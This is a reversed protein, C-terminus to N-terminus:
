NKRCGNSNKTLCSHFSCSSTHAHHPMWWFQMLICWEITKGGGNSRWSGETVQKLLFAVNSVWKKIFLSQNHLKISNQGFKFAFVLICTKQKYTYCIVVHKSISNLWHLLFPGDWGLCEFPNKITRLVISPYCDTFLFIMTIQM